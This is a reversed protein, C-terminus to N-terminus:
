KQLLEHRQSCPVLRAMASESQNYEAEGWGVWGSRKKAPGAPVEWDKVRRANYGLKLFMQVCHGQDLSENVWVRGTSCPLLDAHPFLPIHLIEETNIYIPGSM